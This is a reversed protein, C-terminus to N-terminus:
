SSNAANTVSTIDRNTSKAIDRLNRNMMLDRGASQVHSHNSKPMLGYINRYLTVIVSSLAACLVHSCKTKEMIRLQSLHTKLTLHQYQLYLLLFILTLSNCAYYDEHGNLILVIHISLVIVGM